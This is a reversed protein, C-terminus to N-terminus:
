RIARNPQVMQATAGRVTQATAEAVVAPALKDLTQSHTRSLVGRHSPKINEYLARVRILYAGPALGAVRYLTTDSGPRFDADGGVGVPQIGAPAKSADFGDPLIRNDKVYGSARMLATTRRGSPEAMESEYVQAKEPTDIVGHHPQPEAPVAGSHFVTKGSSDKVEFDLWIRRSPFGTPLKHGTLNTLTVSAELVGAKWEPTVEIMAASSLMEQARSAMSNDAGGLLAPLAFNAGAFSHLGFPQRPSTPPYPRGMPNHAIYNEKPNDAVPVHCSQCTMDGGGFSSAKWELYPAQEVFEGLVKGKEDVTPTIVTHCTACLESKQTQSGYSPTLGVHMTMPHAFPDKHPGYALHQKNIQFGGTFSAPEGLGKDEILHCVSCGVGDKAQAKGQPTHCLNCKEEVVKAVAPNHNVEEATKAQWYPDRGAHAMVSGKWLTYQGLRSKEGLRTHCISCEASEVFPSDQAAASAIALAALFFRSFKIM